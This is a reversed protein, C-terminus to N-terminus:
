GGARPRSQTRHLRTIQSPEKHPRQWFSSRLTCDFALKTSEDHSVPASAVPCWYSNDRHTPAWHRPDPTARITDFGTFGALLVLSDLPDFLRALRGMGRYKLMHHFSHMWFAHGPLYGKAMTRFGRRM